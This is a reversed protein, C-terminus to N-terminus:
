GWPFWAEDLHPPRYLSKGFPSLLDIWIERRVDQANSGGVDNGHANIVINDLRTLLPDIVVASLHFLASLGGKLIQGEIQHGTGACPTGGRCCFARDPAPPRRRALLHLHGYRGRRGPAHTRRGLLGCSGHLSRAASWRHYPGHRQLDPSHG